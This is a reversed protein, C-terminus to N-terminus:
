NVMLQQLNGCYQRSRHHLRRLHRTSSHLFRNWRCSVLDCYQVSRTHDGRWPLCICAFRGRCLPGICYLSIRSLCMCKDWPSSRINRDFGYTLIKIIKNKRIENHYIVNQYQSCNIHIFRQVIKYKKNVSSFIPVGWNLPFLKIIMSSLLSRLNSFCLTRSLYLNLLLMLLM